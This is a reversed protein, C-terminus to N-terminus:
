ESGMVVWVSIGNVRDVVVLHKQDPLLFVGVPQGIQSPLVYEKYVGNQNVFINLQGAQRHPDEVEPSFYEYLFNESGEVTHVNHIRVSEFPVPESDEFNSSNYFDFGALLKGNPLFEPNWGYVAGVETMTLVDVIISMLDDNEVADFVALTGSPNVSFSSSIDTYTAPPSYSALIRMTETDIRLINGGGVYAVFSKGDPLFAVGNVNRLSKSNVLTLEPISLLEIGLNDGLLILNEQPNLDINSGGGHLHNLRISHLLTLEPLKWIQLTQDQNWVYLNSGDLTLAADSPYLYPEPYQRLQDGSKIDWEIITGDRSVAIVQENSNFSVGLVDCSFDDFKQTLEGSALDWIKVEIDDGCGKFTSFGDRLEWDETYSGYILKKDDQSFALTGLSPVGISRVKTGMSTYISIQGQGAYYRLIAFMSEDHSFAIKPFYAQYNSLIEKGSVLDYGYIIGDMDAKSLFIHKANPSIVAAADGVAERANIQSDEFVAPLSIQEDNCVDFLYSANVIDTVALFCGDATISFATLGRSDLYWEDIKEMISLDFKEIYHTAWRDKWVESDYDTDLQLQYNFRSHFEDKYFVLGAVNAAYLAGEEQSFEVDIIAGSNSEFSYVYEFNTIDFIDIGTERAVAIYQGDPSFAVDLIQGKGVQYKIEAKELDAHFLDIPEPLPTPIQTPAITPAFTESPTRTVEHTETNVVPVPSKQESVSSDCAVLLILSLSIISLKKV